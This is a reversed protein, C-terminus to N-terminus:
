SAICLNWIAQCYYLIENPLMLKYVARTYNNNNNNKNRTIAAVQNADSRNSCVNEVADNM